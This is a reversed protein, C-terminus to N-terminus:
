SFHLDVHASLDTGEQSTKLFNPETLMPHSHALNLHEIECVTQESTVQYPLLM